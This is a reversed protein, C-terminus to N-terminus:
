QAAEDELASFFPGLEERVASVPFGQRVAYDFLRKLDARSKPTGTRAVRLRLAERLSAAEPAEEELRDLAARVIRADLGLRQLDQAIRRNGRLKQARLYTARRCAVAQDDLYGRSKLGGLVVRIEEPTGHRSLKRSLEAATHDRVALLRLARNWLEDHGSV